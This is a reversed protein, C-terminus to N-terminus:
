SESHYSNYYGFDLLNLGLISLCVGFGPSHDGKLNAWISGYFFVFTSGKCFSPWNWEWHMDRKM